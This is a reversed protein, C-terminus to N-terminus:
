ASRERDLVWGMVILLCWTATENLVIGHDPALIGRSSVRELAAQSGGCM